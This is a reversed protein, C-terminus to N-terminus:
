KSRRVGDVGSLRANVLEMLRPMAFPKRLLEVQGPITSLDAVDLMGTIIIVPMTLGAARIKDLCSLGSVKPLDLDLIVLGLSAGQDEVVSLAEDGDSATVVDYGAVELESAIITRIHWDDEAVLVTGGCGTKAALHVDLHDGPVPSPCRPFTLEVSTGQGEASEIEIRGGHETVIGHVMALGLGTGKERTKTTFFPEFVRERIKPSMGTGADEVVISALDGRSALRLQLRGGDPMADRANIVLNLVVQQLQPTDGEIWLEGTSPADIDFEIGAPMLPRLMGMSDKVLEVLNVPSKTMPIKQGFTLLSRTVRSGQMAVKKIGDLARQGKHDSPIIRQTAGAYGIIAALVNNFDHAVGTALTGVAEMKQARRLQEELQARDGEAVKRESIDTAVGGIRTPRGDQSSIVSRRDSIWRVRGDPLLIRYEVEASGEAVLQDASRKAAPRDDPHIADFWLGPKARFESVPQGLIQEAAANIYLLESGDATAAWVVDTLSSLLNQFREESARLLRFQRRKNRWYFLLVGLLSLCWVALAALAM